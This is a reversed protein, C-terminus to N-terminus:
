KSSLLDWNAITNCKAEGFYAVLHEKNITYLFKLVSKAIAVRETKSYRLTSAELAKAPEQMHSDSNLILKSMCDLYYDRERQEFCSLIHESEMIQTPGDKYIFTSYAELIKRLVNGIQTYPLTDDNSGDVIFTFVEDLMEGYLNLNRFENEDIESLHFNILKYNSADYVRNKPKCNKPNLVKVIDVSLKHLDQLTSFNHTLILFKNDKCKKLAARVQSQLSSLIGIRNEFDFSSVPDDLVILCPESYIDEKNKGSGISAFFYSLAIANREGVSVRDPAIIKGNVLLKYCDRELQLSLRKGDMFIFSLIDNIIELPINTNKIESILAAIKRDNELIDSNCKDIRNQLLIEEENMKHYANINEQYRHATIIRNLQCLSDLYSKRNRVAANIEDIKSNISNISSNYQAICESIVPLSFNQYDGYINALRDKLKDKAQLLRTNLRQRNVKLENYQSELLKYYDVNEAIEEIPEMLYMYTELEKRFTESENNLFKSITEIIQKKDNESYERLCFPCVGDINESFYKQSYKLYNYNTSLIDVIKKDRNTIEHREIKRRCLASIKGEDIKKLYVQYHIDIEQDEKLSEVMRIGDQIKEMARQPDEVNPAKSLIYLENILPEGVGSNQKHGRLRRDNEAWDNSGHLIERLENLKKEKIKKNKEMAENLYQLKEELNNKNQQAIKLLSNLKGQPGLMVMTKLGNKQFKVTREIFEENFVYVSRKFKEDIKFGYDVFIEPTKSEQEVSQHIGRAITSKGSGNRGYVVTINNKLLGPMETEEKFCGGLIKIGDLKEIKGTAM